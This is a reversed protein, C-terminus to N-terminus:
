SQPAVQSAQSVFDYGAAVGLVGQRQKLGGRVSEGQGNGIKRKGREVTLFQDFAHAQDAGSEGSDDGTPIGVLRPGTNAKQLFRKQWLHQRLRDLRREFSGALIYRM